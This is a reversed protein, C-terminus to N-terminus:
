IFSKRTVFRGPSTMYFKKFAHCFHASDFFGWKEAIEELTMRGTLLDRAANSMRVRLAFKGYSVGMSERFLESFRSPSLSCLKAAESLSPPRADLRWITDLANRIRAFARFTGSRRGPDSQNENMRNVANLIMQHILLWAEIKWNPPQRCHLHFLRRGTNVIETRQSDNRPLYREAPDATFPTLWDCASCPGCDGLAEIDLNVALVFNRKGALRYAHPEWCMTWWLEGPGYTRTQNALILEAKGHLVICIQLAYHSDGHFDTGPHESYEVALGFPSLLSLDPHTQREVPIENLIQM